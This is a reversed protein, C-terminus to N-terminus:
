KEKNKEITARLLKIKENLLPLTHELRKVEQQSKYLQWTYSIMKKNAVPLNMSGVPKGNLFTVTVNNLENNSILMAVSDAKSGTFLVTSLNGRRYNLAQDQKVSETSASEGSASVSISTFPAGQYVAILELAENESIRAVLSTSQPPYKKEWGSMITYGEVERSHDVRAFDRLWVNIQDHLIDINQTCSDISSKLNDVSDQLSKNWEAYSDSLSVRKERSSCATLMVSPLIVVGAIVLQIVTKFYNRM